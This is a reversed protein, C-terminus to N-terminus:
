TAVEGLELLRMLAPALERSDSVLLSAGADMLEDEAHYGWAVGISHVGALRAMEIDFVTDGVMVTDAAETGTEAMAQRIMSPDPKSPHEDATQISVFHRTLRERELVADVGRRSKGTAIALMVDGRSALFDVAERIGPFLPEEIERESRLSRFASKYDEAMRAARHRHEDPLLRGVAGELSIGIVRRVHAAPPPALGAMVFAQAMAAVIMHQSDVLTGDCDFIVLKM